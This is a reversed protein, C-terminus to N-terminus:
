QEKQQFALLGSELTPTFIGSIGADRKDVFGLEALGRPLTSISAPEKHFNRGVPSTVMDGRANPPRIDPPPVEGADLFLPDFGSPQSNASRRAKRQTM